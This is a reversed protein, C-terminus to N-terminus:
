ASCVAFGGYMGRGCSSCPLGAGKAGFGSGFAFSNRARKWRGSTACGGNLAYESAGSGGGGAGPLGGSAMSGWRLPAGGVAGPAALVHHCPTSLSSKVVPCVKSYKKARLGVIICIMETYVYLEQRQHATQERGQAAPARGQEWAGRRRAGQAAARDVAMGPVPRRGHGARTGPGQPHQSGRDQNRRPVFVLTHQRQPPSSPSMRHRAVCRPRPNQRTQEDDLRASPCSVAHHNHNNPTPTGFLPRM